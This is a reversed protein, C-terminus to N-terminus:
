LVSHYCVKMQHLLGGDGKPGHIVTGKQITYPLSTLKRQNM